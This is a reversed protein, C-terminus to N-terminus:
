LFPAKNMPASRDLLYVDQALQDHHGTFDCCKLRKSLNLALPRNGLGFRAEM